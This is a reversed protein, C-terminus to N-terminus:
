FPWRVGSTRQVDLRGNGRFFDEEGNPSEAPLGSVLDVPKDPKEIVGVVV